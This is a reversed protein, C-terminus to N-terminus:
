AIVRWWVKSVIGCDHDLLGSLLDEWAIKGVLFLFVVVVL